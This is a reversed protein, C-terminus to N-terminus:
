RGSPGGSVECEIASFSLERFEGSLGGLVVGIAEEKILLVVM